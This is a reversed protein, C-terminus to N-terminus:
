LVIYIRIVQVLIMWFLSYTKRKLNKGFSIFFVTDYGYLWKRDTGRM